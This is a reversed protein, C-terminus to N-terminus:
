FGEAETEQTSPNCFAGGYRTKNIKKKKLCHRATYGLSAKFESDEQRLKGLAQIVPTKKCSDDPHPKIPHPSAPAILHFLSLTLITPKRITAM